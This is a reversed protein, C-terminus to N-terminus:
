LPNQFLLLKTFCVTIRQLRQKSESAGGRRHSLLPSNGREALQVLTLAERQLSQCLPTPAPGKGPPTQLTQPAPGLKVCMVLSPEEKSGDALTKRGWLAIGLVQCLVWRFQAGSM